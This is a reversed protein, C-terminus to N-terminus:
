PDIEGFHIAATYIDSIDIIGDYIIDLNPNYRPDPPMAGFALAILYIDTIDVIGDANIDGVLAVTFNGEIRINDTPNCDGPCPVLAFIRYDGKSLRNTNITNDVTIESGPLLTVNRIFGCTSFLTFSETFDGRNIITIHATLSYGQGVITKSPKIKIIAIDHCGPPLMFINLTLAAALFISLSKLPKEKTYM